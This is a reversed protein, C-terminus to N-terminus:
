IPSLTPDIMAGGSAVQAGFQFNPWVPQALALALLALTVCRLLLLLLDEIQIRRSRAAVVETLLKMAAWRMEPTRYRNLLHILIPIGIGAAGWLLIPQLFVMKRVM